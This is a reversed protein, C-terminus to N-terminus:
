VLFQFIWEDEQADKRVNVTFELAEGEKESSSWFRIELAEKKSDYDSLIAPPAPRPYLQQTSTRIRYYLFVTCGKTNTVEHKELILSNLAKAPM